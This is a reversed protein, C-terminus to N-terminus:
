QPLQRFSEIFNMNLLVFEYHATLPEPYSISLESDTVAMFLRSETRHTLSRLLGMGSVKGGNRMRVEVATRDSLQRKKALRKEYAAMYNKDTPDGEELVILSHQPNILYTDVEECLLDNGACRSIRANHLVIQNVPFPNKYSFMSPTHLMDQLRPSGAPQVVSGEYKTDHTYVVINM